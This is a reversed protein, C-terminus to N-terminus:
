ISSASTCVRLLQNCDAATRQPRSGACRCFHPTGVSMGWACCFVQAYPRCRNSNPYAAPCASPLAGQCPTMGKGCTAPKLARLTPWKAVQISATAMVSAFSFAGCVGSSHDATMCSKIALNKSASLSASSRINNRKFCSSVCHCDSQSCAPRFSGKGRVTTRSCQSEPRSDAPRCCRKKPPPTCNEVRMGM